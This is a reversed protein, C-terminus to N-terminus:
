TNNIKKCVITRKLIKTIRDAAKGDWLDPPNVPAHFSKDTKQFQKIIDSTKTGVIINTGNTVTIPRETNDRLTLCPIQLITTEEQIGGSDTLVVRANTMLELFNLYGQPPIIKLHPLEDLTLELNGEMFIKKTRPHIPMVITTDRQIVQIAKLIRNLTHIDTVNSQRHLTLLSFQKPELNLDELISTEHAKESNQLLTDIMVNGVLFIKDKSIGEARLNNMADHETCFLIDSISDTIIRNIEEPMSRDHSRLGAEVHILKIGSKATVLACALTSNVDGVVLVADPNIDLLVPEFSRMIKSTQQTDSGSGVGLNINPQALKLDHFFLESLEKDYHQGTHVLYPVIEKDHDFANIIPAMKIFNPRAGVICIIKM